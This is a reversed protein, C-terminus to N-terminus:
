ACQLCVKVINLHGAFSALHLPTRGSETVAGVDAGKDLLVQRVTKAILFGFAFCPIVSAIDTHGHRSVVHTATWGQSTRAAIDAGNDVLM